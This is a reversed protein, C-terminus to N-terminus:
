KVLLDELQDLLPLQSKLIRARAEPLSFWGARDVEPVTKWRGSHPPGEM